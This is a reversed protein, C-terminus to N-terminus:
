ESAQNRARYAAVLAATEKPTTTATQVPIRFGGGRRAMASSAPPNCPRRTAVSASRVRPITRGVDLGRPWDACRARAWEEHERIEDKRSGREQSQWNGLVGVGSSALDGVAAADSESEEVVYGIQRYPTEGDRRERDHRDVANRERSTLPVGYRGDDPGLLSDARKTAPPHGYGTPPSEMLDRLGTGTIAARLRADEAAYLAEDAVRWLLDLLRDLFRLRAAYLTLPPWHAPDDMRKPGPKRRVVARAARGRAINSCRDTCYRRPRGAGPTRTFRSGCQACHPRIDPLTETTM